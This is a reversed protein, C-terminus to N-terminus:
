VVSKRDATNISGALSVPTQGLHLTASDITVMGQALKAAFNYDLSIPYGIELGNVRARDLKLLGKAALSGSQSDLQSEGSLIGAAKAPMAAGLFKELGDIGVQNLILNAHFPTDAPKSESVPGGSGTVRLDQRGEGQIRAALDFSFPQGASYNLLTLDIHDYVARPRAQQLDTIGIQGDLIALKDLAFARRSTGTSGAPSPTSTNGLTSFNWVGEKTKVLEVSPRRLEVSNINVSGRFLSLLSVQVDLNEARLFYSQQGFRADEAIVPDAVQFRLPLLGLSMKGLTIKRGLQQELQAQIVGRYHNVDLLLWSAALVLVLIGAVIGLGFALKRM